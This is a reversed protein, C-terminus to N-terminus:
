DKPVMIPDAQATSHTPGAQDKKSQIPTHSQGNVTCTMNEFDLKEKNKALWDQGLIFDVGPILADLVFAKIEHTRAQSGLKLRDICTGATTCAVSNALQVQTDSGTVRIGNRKAFDKHVFCHSAQSDPAAIGKEGAIQVALRMAAPGISALTPQSVAGPKAPADYYVRVPWPVGPLAKRAALGDPVTFMQTGVPYEKIIQMNEIYKNRKAEAWLPLVVCMSTHEPDKAKCELYHQLMQQFPRTRFPPHLWVAHGSLDTRLTHAAYPSLQKNNGDANCCADLTFQVKLLTQIESFLQKDVMVDKNKHMHLEPLLHAACLLPPSPLETGAVQQM